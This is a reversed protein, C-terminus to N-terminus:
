ARPGLEGEPDRVLRGEIRQSMWTALSARILSLRDCGGQLSPRDVVPRSRDAWGVSFKEFWERAVGEFTDGRSYREARRRAAPDIEAALASRM